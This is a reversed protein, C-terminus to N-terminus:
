PWSPIDSKAHSVNIELVNLMHSDNPYATEKALRASMDRM